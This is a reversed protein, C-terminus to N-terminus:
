FKYGVSFGFNNNKLKGKNQFGGFKPVLNALGIQANFQISLQEFFEYGVMFNAGYDLPKGYTYSEINGGEVADNRFIVDGKSGIIIDGTAVDTDSNWNGGTGYGLYPGACALLHGTGLKPKYLMNIPVEIYEAKVEFNTASGHFGGTEQKFGKRSYLFAPQVYFDGTVPIDATLGLVIGPMSQTSGKEGNEDKVSVNSFNVGAKLGLKTQAQTFNSSALLLFLLLTSFVQKIFHHVM